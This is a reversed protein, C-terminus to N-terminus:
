YFVIDTIIDINKYYFKIPAEKISSYYYLTDDQIVIFDTINKNDYEDNNYIEIYNKEIINIKYKYNNKNLFDLILKIM